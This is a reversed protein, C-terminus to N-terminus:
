DGNLDDLDASLADRIWLQFSGLSALFFQRM